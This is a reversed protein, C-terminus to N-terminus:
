PLTGERFTPRSRARHRPSFPVALLRARSQPLMRFWILLVTQRASGGDDGECEPWAARALAEPPHRFVGARMCIGPREAAISNAEFRLVGVQWDDLLHKSAFRILRYAFTLADKLDRQPGEVRSSGAYALFLRDFREGLARASGPLAIRVEGLRKKLLLMGFQRLQERSVASLYSVTEPSWGHERAAAASDELFRERASADSYLLALAAQVETLDM